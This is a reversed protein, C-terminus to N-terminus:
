GQVTLDLRQSQECLVFVLKKFEPSAECELRFSFSSLPMFVILVLTCVHRLFFWLIQLICKEIVKAFGFQGNRNKQDVAHFQLADDRPEVIKAEQKTTITYRLQNILM